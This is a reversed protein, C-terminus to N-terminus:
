CSLCLCQDTGSTTGGYDKSFAGRVDERRLEKREVERNVVDVVVGVNVLAEDVDDGVLPTSDRDIPFGM